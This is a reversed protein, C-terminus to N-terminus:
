QLPRQFIQKLTIDYTIDDMAKLFGAMASFRRTLSTSFIRLFGFSTSDMIQPPKEFAEAVGAAGGAAAATV